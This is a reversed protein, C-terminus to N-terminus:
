GGRRAVVTDRIEELDRFEGQTRVLIELNGREYLGAPLNRNELAIADLVAGVPVGLAKLRSAALDVHIERTLGGRIDAAAVGPIREIRYKVQEEVFRRLELPPMASSVGLIVIPFATVDFKRIQPREIDEPLRGMVRDIRDRVDNAAVDLDTGWTFSARVVSRGEVSTSTLEEVGQVAALAEELPITVSEEM